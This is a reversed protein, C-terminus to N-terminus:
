VSIPGHFFVVFFIAIRLKCFLSVLFSQRELFISSNRLEYYVLARHVMHYFRVHSNLLCYLTETLASQSITAGRFNSARLVVIQGLLSAHLAFISTKPFYFKWSAVMLGVAGLCVGSDENLTWWKLKSRVRPWFDYQNIKLKKLHFRKLDFTFNLFFFWLCFGVFYVAFKWPRSSDM